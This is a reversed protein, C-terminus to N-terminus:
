ECKQKQRNHTITYLSDPNGHVFIVLVMFIYKVLFPIVFNGAAADGDYYNDYTMMSFYVKCTSNTAHIYSILSKNAGYAKYVLNKSSDSLLSPSFIVFWDWIYM